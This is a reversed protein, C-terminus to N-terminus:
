RFDTIYGQGSHATATVILTTNSDTTDYGMKGTWAAGGIESVILVGAAHDWPKPAPAAILDAHGFALTRYEHCSCRLNTVRGWRPFVSAIRSREEPPYLFLPVFAHAESKPRRPPGHLRIPTQDPRCYLAGHGRSAMIWDDMVPDYLLGFITEGDEVVALIVGFTALGAVFNWTGDIPDVLVTRGAYKLRDLLAPNEAVAEEGVIGADPLLRRIEASMVREAAKDAITVLDSPSAKTSVDAPSLRRFRPLIESRAAARVIAILGDRECETVTM